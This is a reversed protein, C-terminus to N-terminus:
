EWTLWFLGFSRGILPLLVAWFSLLCTSTQPASTSAQPAGCQRRYPAERLYVEPLLHGGGWHTPATASEFPPPQPPQGRNAWFNKEFLWTKGHLLCISQQTYKHYILFPIIFQREGGKWFKQIWWQTSTHFPPPIKAEPGLIRHTKICKPYCPHVM